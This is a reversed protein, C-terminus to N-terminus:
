LNFDHPESMRCINILLKMLVTAVTATSISKDGGTHREEKLGRKTTTEVEWKLRKVCDLCMVSIVCHPPWYSPSAKRSRAGAPSSGIAFHLEQLPCPVNEETSKGAPTATGSTVWGAWMTFAQEGLSQCWSDQLKRSQEELLIGWIYIASAGPAQPFFSFFTPNNSNQSKDM